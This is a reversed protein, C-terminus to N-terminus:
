VRRVNLDSTSFHTKDRSREVGTKVTRNYPFCKITENAILCLNSSVTFTGYVYRLRVNLLFNIRVATHIAM